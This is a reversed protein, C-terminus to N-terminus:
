RIQPGQSHLRAALGSHRETRTTMAQQFLAPTSELLIFERSARTVATYLLERTLLPSPQSPLHLLVREFESGQSQHVSLAWADQTHGQLQEPLVWRVTDAVLFAVRLGLAPHELVLGMDGNMLDLEYLNQTVLLAKGVPWPSTCLLGRQQLAHQIRQNLGEIGDPGHRLPTLLQQRTLQKLSARAWDDAIAATSPRTAHIANFLEALGGKSEILEQTQWPAGSPVRKLQSSYTAFAADAAVTDQQSIAQALAVIGPADKARWNKQLRAIQTGLASVRTPPIAPTCGAAALWALTDADYRLDDSDRCLEGMVAGAEVSALQDKDGVLILRCSQPLADLLAVFLDIDIMSAEDVVVLDAALPNQAQHRFHRSGKRTGLLRHLTVVKVGLTALVAPTVQPGEPTNFNMLAQQMSFTLRAAAKGTPAALRLTLPQDPHTDLQLQQLLALVKVVTTTKGTGPGGTIIGFRKRGALACAIKQWDSPAANPFLKTLLPQVAAGQLLDEGLRQQLHTAIRTELQWYRQLYLRNNELVLPKSDDMGVLPNHTLLAEQDLKCLNYRAATSVITEIPLCLHGDALQRSVLGALECQAQSASPFRRALFRMLALDISRLSPNPETIVPAHM